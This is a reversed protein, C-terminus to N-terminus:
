GGCREDQQRGQAHYLLALNNLFIATTEHDPGFERESLELAKDWFPIAQKYWGAEYLARGQNNAEDLAESQAHLSTPWLWLIVLILAVMRAIFM